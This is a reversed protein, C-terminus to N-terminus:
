SVCEQCHYLRRIDNSTLRALCHKVQPLQIIILDRVLTLCCDPFRQLCNLFPHTVWRALFPFKADQRHIAAPCPSDIGRLDEGPDFFSESLRDFVAKVQEGPRACPGNDCPGRGRSNRQPLHNIQKLLLRRTNKPFRSERRADGHEQTAPVRLLGEFLHQLFVQGWVDESIYRSRQQDRARIYRRASDM